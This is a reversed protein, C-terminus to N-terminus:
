WLRAQDQDGAVWGADRTEVRVTQHLFPLHSGRSSFPDRLDPTSFFAPKQGRTGKSAHPVRLASGKDLAGASEVLAQGRKRKQSVLCLVQTNGLMKLILRRRMGPTPPCFSYSETKWTGLTVTKEGRLSKMAAFPNVM